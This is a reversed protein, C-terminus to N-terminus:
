GQQRQSDSATATGTPAPAETAIAAPAVAAEDKGFAALNRKGCTPLKVKHHM